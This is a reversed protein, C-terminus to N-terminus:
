WEIIVTIKSSSFEVLICQNNISMRSRPYWQSSILESRQSNKVTVKMIKGSPIEM